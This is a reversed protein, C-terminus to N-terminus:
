YAPPRPDRWETPIVEFAALLAADHKRYIAQGSIPQMGAGRQIEGVRKGADALTEAGDLYYAGLILFYEADLDKLRRAADDVEARYSALAASAELRALALGDMHDAMSHEGVSSHVRERTYDIAGVEEAKARLYDVLAQAKRSERSAIRVRELWPKVQRIKNREAETM